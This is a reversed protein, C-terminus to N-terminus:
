FAELLKKMFGKEKQKGGAKEKEKVKLLLEPYNKAMLKFADDKNDNLQKHLDKHASEILIQDPKQKKKWQNALDKYYPVDGITKRNLKGFEVAWEYRQKYNLPIKYGGVIKNKWRKPHKFPIKLNYTLFDTTSEKVKRSHWPIFMQKLLKKHLPEAVDHLRAVNGEMDLVATAGALPKIIGTQPDQSFINKQAFDMKLNEWVRLGFSIKKIQEDTLNPMFAGAGVYSTANDAGKELTYKPIDKLTINDSTAKQVNRRMSSFASQAPNLYGVYNAVEKSPDFGPGMPNLAEFTDRIGKMMSKDLALSGLTWYMRFYNEEELINATESDGEMRMSNIQNELELYEGVAGGITIFTIFPDGRGIPFTTTEGTTKNTFDLTPPLRRSQYVFDRSYTSHLGGTKLQMEVEDDEGFNLGQYAGYGMALVTSGTLGRAMMLQRYRPDNIMKKPNLGMRVFASPGREYVGQKFANFLTKLFPNKSQIYSTLMNAGLNKMFGRDIDNFKSRRSKEFKDMFGGPKFEEQLLHVHALDQAASDLDEPLNKILDRYVTYRELGKAGSKVARNMALMHLARRYFFVRSFQDGALLTRGPTGIAFGTANTLGRIMQNLPKGTNEMGFGSASFQDSLAMGMFKESAQQDTNFANVMEHAQKPNQPLDRFARAGAALPSRGFYAYDSQFMEWYAQLTGFDGARVEDWQMGGGKLRIAKEITNQSAMIYDELITMKYFAMNATLNVADDTFSSLFGNIAIYQLADFTKKVKSRGLVKAIGEPHKMSGIMSALELVNLASNDAGDMLMAEIQKVREAGEKAMINYAQLSRGFDKGIGRIIQSMNLFRLQERLFEAQMAKPVEPGDGKKYALHMDDIKKGFRQLGGTIDLLYDRVVLTMVPMGETTNALSLIFPDINESGLMQEIHKRAHGAAVIVQDNTLKDNKWPGLKNEYMAAADNLAQKMEDSSEVNRLNILPTDEFNVQGPKYYNGLDNPTFPLEKLPKKNKVGKKGTGKPTEPPAFKTESTTERWELPVYKKEKGTKKNYWKGDARQEYTKTFTALRNAEIGEVEAQNLPKPASAEDWYTIKGRLLLRQDVLVAEEASRVAFGTEVVRPLHDKKPNFNAEIGNFKAEVQQIEGRATMMPHKMEQGSAIEFRSQQNIKFEVNKLTVARDYGLAGGVSKGGTAKHVTILNLKEGNERKLKDGDAITPRAEVVTGQEIDRNATLKATIKQPFKYTLIEQDTLTTEKPLDVKKIAKPKPINETLVEEGTESKPDVEDLAQKLRTFPTDEKPIVRDEPKKPYLEKFEDTVNKWFSGVGKELDNMQFRLLEKEEDSRKLVGFYEDFFKFADTGYKVIFRAFSEGIVGEFLGNSAQRILREFENSSKAVRLGAVSDESAGMGVMADAILSNFQPLVQNEEQGILTSGAATSALTKIGSVADDFYKVQKLAASGLLYEATGVGVDAMLQTGLGKPQYNSGVDADEFFNQDIDSAPLTKGIPAISVAYGNEDKTISMGATFLMTEIAKNIPTKVTNYLGEVVREPVTEVLTRGTDIASNFLSKIAGWAGDSILEGVSKEPKDSEARKQFLYILNDVDPDDTQNKLEMWIPLMQMASKGHHEAGEGFSGTQTDFQRFLAESIPEDIEPAIRETNRPKNFDEENQKPEVLPEETPEEIPQEVLDTM